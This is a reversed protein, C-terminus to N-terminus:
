TSPAAPAWIGVEAARAKREAAGLQSQRSVNPPYERARAYGELVLRENVFLGGAWVYALLRGYPDREEIDLELELAGSGLLRANRASADDALYEASTEGDALEPADIGIYRVKEERGDPMSVWITDGDVVRVLSVQLRSAAQKGGPETSVAAGPTAAGDERVTNPGSSGCGVSQSLALVLAAVVLYRMVTAALRVHLGRATLFAAQL